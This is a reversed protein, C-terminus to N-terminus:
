SLTSLFLAKVSVGSLEQSMNEVDTYGNSTAYNQLEQAFGKMETLLSIFDANDTTPIFKFSRAKRGTYGMLKEMLSDKFGNLFSYVEDTNKHEAFSGTQWHILWTQLTFYTLKSAIREVTMESPSSSLMEEPFLSKM